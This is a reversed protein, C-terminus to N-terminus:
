EFATKLRVYLLRGRPDATRPDYGGNTFVEPPRRNTLNIAGISFTTSRAGALGGKLTYAYQLDYTTQARIRFNGVGAPCARTIPDAQTFDACTADDNYSNTYRVFGSLAHGGFTWGASINGRLNIVPDAFTLANRSNLASIRTGLADPISYKLVYTGDVGVHFDGFNNTVFTYHASIDVGSTDIFGENTYVTTLTALAGTTPDRTVSAGVPLTRGAAALAVLQNANFETIVNNFAFNFYDFDVKLRKLPEVSFGLNFARSTENGLTSTGNTRIPIFPERNLVPDFVANLSTQDGFTQFLSPARFSTGWSGRFSLWKTARYIASVKPNVTSGISGGYGEYRVAGSLDIQSTVPIAVEGFVAVVDRNANFDATPETVFLFNGRNTNDDYSQSLFEDRYQFGLAVGVDGAPLKFLNGTVVADVVTLNSRATFTIEGTIYDLVEQSNRVPVQITQGSPTVFPVTAGSAAVAGSGFPNYFLCGNQGPTNLAPNCNFGGFGNIAQVTENALGDSVGDLRYDNAARTYSVDFHWNEDFDGKLGAVVRYTDSSTNTNNPTDTFFNTVQQAGPSRTILAPIAQGFTNFPNSASITFPTVVPFNSSGRLNRNRAYGFEGYFQLHDSFDHEVQTYSQIRTTRPIINFTPGFDYSCVGLPPLPSGGAVPQGPFFNILNSQAAAAQCAPDPVFPTGFAANGGAFAATQAAGVAGLTAGLQAQQAPTLSAGISTFGFAGLAVPLAGALVANTLGDAAGLPDSGGTASVPSFGAFSGVLFRPLTAVTAAGLVPTLAVSPLVPLVRNGVPLPLPISTGGPGPISFNFLAVNQNYAAQYQAFLAPNNAAFAATAQPLVLNPPFATQTSQQLFFPAGAFRGRLDREASTLATRDLYNFSTVIKTRDGQSGFIASVQTDSADFNATRFEGEAEFGKFNKRTIFNAVGAVADSGYLSAAGDKLVELREIAISPVLSATDVFSLGADTQAGSFVQRRGNLLVLTSEVGLGRLNINETGTTLNQTFADPNNQAGQNIPLTFTLDAIQNAGIKALDEGGIVAIPSPQDIQAKRRIFSGTVVIEETAGPEAQDAAPPAQQAWASTSMVAFFSAGLLLARKVPHAFTM